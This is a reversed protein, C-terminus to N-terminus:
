GVIAWRSLRLVQLILDRRVLWIIGIYILAGILISILLTLWGTWGTLPAYAQLFVVVAVFMILSTLLPVVYIRLQRLIPLGLIMGTIPIILVPLFAASSFRAITFPMLGMPGALWLLPFMVVLNAGLIKAWIDPRGMARCAEGNLGWLNFLGPLIVLWSIVMGLGPWRNGYLLTVIEDAVASIGFVMPFMVLALIEQLRLLTEGLAEGRRHLESFAPYAVAALISNLFGPFLSAFTFGMAYVGVGSVGLFYGAFANDGYSFLWTQFGTILSWIGFKLLSRTIAWDIGFSPRWRVLLWSLGISVLSGALSGIVLAWLGMGVIALGVSVVAPVILGTTNIWFLKRFDMERQLLANPISGLAFVPLALGAVRLVANLDSSHYIGSLWPSIWWVIGYLLLGTIVNFWFASQSAQDLDASERQVIAHVMGMNAIIQALYVVLTSIAVVGFDQPTLLGAILITAVPTVLRPALGALMTWKVSKAAKNVIEERSANALTKDTVITILENKPENSKV